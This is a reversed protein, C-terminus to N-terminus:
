APGYPGGVDRSVSDRPDGPQPPRPRAEETEKLPENRMGEPLPVRVVSWQGDEGERPVWRSTAREPHERALRECAQVAEERTM